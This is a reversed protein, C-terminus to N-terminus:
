YFFNDHNSEQIEQSSIYSGAGDFLYEYDAYAGKRKGHVELEYQRKLASDKKQQQLAIKLRSQDGSWQEQIRRIKFREFESGLHQEIQQKIEEPLQKSKIVFELDEFTGQDDFELSYKVNSVKAKAEYSHGNQNREKIWHIKEGEFLTEAFRRAEEPFDVAEIREEVEEKGQASALVAIFVCILLLAYRM